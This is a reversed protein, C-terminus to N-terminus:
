SPHHADEPGEATEPRAFPTGEPSLSDLADIRSMSGILAGVTMLLQVQARGNFLDVLMHVV